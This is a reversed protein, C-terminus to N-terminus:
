MGSLSINIADAEAVTLEGSEGNDLLHNLFYLWVTKMKKSNFIRNESPRRIYKYKNLTTYIGRHAKKCIQKQMSPM